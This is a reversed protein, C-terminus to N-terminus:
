ILKAADEGSIEYDMIFAEKSPRALFYFVIVIAFFAAFLFKGTLIMITINFINLGELLAYRVILHTRYALLKANLSSMNKKSNEVQKSYILRSSYIGTFVVLPTVFLFITEVGEFGISGGSEILLIGIFFYIVQATFLAFYIINIQTFLMKYNNQNIQNM